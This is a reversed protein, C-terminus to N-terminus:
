RNKKKKLDIEKKIRVFHCLAASGILLLVHIRRIFMMAAVDGGIKEM